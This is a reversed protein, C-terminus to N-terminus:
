AAKRWRVPGFWRRRRELVGDRALTALTREVQDARDYESVYLLPRPDRLQRLEAIADAIASHDANVARAMDLTHCWSEGCLRLIRVGLPEDRLGYATEMIADDLERLRARAEVVSQTPRREQGSQATVASAVDPDEHIAAARARVGMRLECGKEFGERASERMARTRRGFSALGAPPTRPLAARMQAIADDLDAVLRRERELAVTAAILDTVIGM